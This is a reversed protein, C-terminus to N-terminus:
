DKVEQKLVKKAIDYQRKKGTRETIPETTKSCIIILEDSDITAEGIKEITSYKEFKSEDFLFRLDEKASYFSSIKNRFFATLNDLSFDAILKDIFINPM